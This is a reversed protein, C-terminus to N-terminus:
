ETSDKGKKSLTILPRGRALRSLASLVAYLGGAFLATVILRVPTGATGLALVVVPGLVAVATLGCLTWLTRAIDPPAKVRQLAEAARTRDDDAEAVKSRAAGVERRLTEVREQAARKRQGYLDGAGPPTRLPLSALGERARRARLLALRNRRLHHYVIEYIPDESRHVTIDYGIRADSWEASFRDGVMKPRIIEFARVVVGNMALLREKVEAYQDDRPSCGLAEPSIRGGRRVIMELRQEVFLSAEAERLSQERLTLRSDCRTLHATADHLADEREFTTHHLTTSRVVLFGGLIGVLAASSQSITSLLWGPDLTM